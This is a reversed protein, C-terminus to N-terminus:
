DPFTVRVRTRGGSPVKVLVRQDRADFWWGSTRMVLDRGSGYEAVRRGNVEVITPKTAYLPIWFTVPEPTRDAEIMVRGAERRREVSSKVTWPRGRADFLTRRTAGRGDPFLRLALQPTDRLPVGPTFSADLLLPLVAGEKVFVPIIELPAPVRAHITRGAWPADSWFDRWAGDPLYVPRHSVNSTMVPAVLLDDGLEYEDDVDGADRDDPHGLVLARMLPLRNRKARFAESVLYPKLNVHIWAYERYAAVVRPDSHSWPDRSVGRSHWQMVPSFAAMEIWRVLVSAPPDPEEPESGSLWGAIDHGWFPLGTLGATLAGRLHIQLGRFDRLGTGTWALQHFRDGASSSIVPPVIERFVFQPRNSWDHLQLIGSPLDLTRIKERLEAIESEQTRSDRSIWPDFISSPPVPVEYALKALESLLAPLSRNASFLFHFECRQGRFILLPDGRLDFMVPGKPPAWVAYGATSAVYPMVDGPASRTTRTGPLAMVRNNLRLGFAHAGSGYAGYYWAPRAGPAAGPATAVAIEKLRTTGPDRSYIIAPLGSSDAIALRVTGSRVDVRLPHLGIEVTLPGRTLVLATDKRSSRVGALGSEDLAARDDAIRFVVAGPASFGVRLWVPTEGSIGTVCRLTAGRRDVTVADAREVIMHESELGSVPRNPGPTELAPQSSLWFILLGSLIM